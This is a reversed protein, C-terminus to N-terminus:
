VYYCIGLPNEIYSILYQNILDNVNKNLIIFQM